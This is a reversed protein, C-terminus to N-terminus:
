AVAPIPAHEEPDALLSPDVDERTPGLVGEWKSVVAAAIGNGLVNTASRAMDLVQDIGFILLLGAEPINFQALTAAIVVLSARPVGAMGKSTLMLILMMTLQEAASLDIGYAQAIFVAAFTCYMMSGDLNFSYGLPLVFSAVKPSAGFLELKELTRPFAAESSATSFALVMPERMMRVLTLIRAGLFPTSILCLVIWLILIGGYFEVVFIGYTQIIALGQKAIIAAIAAFVAVPAAYMVYNTIRLMVHSVEEIGIVVQRARDGLAACAIGFFGSFVVIQLIENTALAEFVSRPVMHAVFDKLNIGTSKIGTEAVGEPLPLKLTYGPQLINVLILGLSLSIVSCLLFWGIAKLGVRGVTSGSGMHAIGAVLTSFVLPAIIMKILRLFIDTLLSIYNIFQQQWTPSAFQNVLYGALIGLLFAVFILTTLGHKRM